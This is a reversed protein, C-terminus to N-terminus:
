GYVELIKKAEREVIAKTKGAEFDPMSVKITHPDGRVTFFVTKCRVFGRGPVIDAGEVVNTIKWDMRNWKRKNKITVVAM